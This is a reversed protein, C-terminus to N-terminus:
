MRRVPSVASQADDARVAGAVARQECFGSASQGNMSRGAQRPPVSTMGQRLRAVFWDVNRTTV